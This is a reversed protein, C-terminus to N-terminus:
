VAVYNATFSITKKSTSATSTGGVYFGNWTSTCGTPESTGTKVTYTSGKAFSPCTVLSYNTQISFPIKVTFLAKNSSDFVTLYQGSSLAMSKLLATPQTATSTTPVSPAQGQAAGMTFIYGGTVKLSANDADIGEEPSGKSSVAILVGGNVTIAGTSGYNSDVSDNGTSWAYTRGGNFIIAGASNICDDYCKLYIDGGNVVISSASKTKSEIGEAGDSATQITYTGGNITITGEAKVAKAKSSNGSSSSGGGMGGGMGPRNMGGSSSSGYTYTSGTTTIEMVPGQTESAGLVINGDAKIGKGAKGTSKCTITGGTITIDTDSKMCSASSTDNEDSDWTADGSTNLQLIGASVNIALDCKMCKGATGTSRAYVLGGTIDIGRKEDEDGNAHICNKVADTVAVTAGPRLYFFGDTAIGHKYKGEAVLVGSGSIILHGETFLCGKRDEETSSSYVYADTGYTAADTLRNTSGESLHLFVRKGCQSNIAPGTGSTIDVGSLTLKYKKNGYIKLSGDTTTGKVIIDVDKVSNTMMDVVVHAGNIVTLIQSNSGTVTASSGDFTVYVKDTFAKTADGSVSSNAEWYIDDNSWDVKDDAIDTAKDGSYETITTNVSSDSGGTTGGGDTIGTGPLDPADPFDVNGMGIGGCAALIAASLALIFIRKM